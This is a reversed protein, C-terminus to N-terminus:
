FLLIFTFLNVYSLCHPQRTKPKQLDTQMIMTAPKFFFFRHSEGMFIKFPKLFHWYVNWIGLITTLASFTMLPHWGLCLGGTKCFPLSVSAIVDEQGPLLHLTESIGVFHVCHWNCWTHLLNEHTWFPRSSCAIGVFWIPAPLYEEGLSYLLVTLM